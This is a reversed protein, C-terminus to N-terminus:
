YSSKVHSSNLRTSKRDSTNGRLNIKSSGGAGSSSRIVQLGAVKGTFANTINTERAEVLETGKLQQAAYGLSKAERKIGLATVVLEDLTEDGTTLTDNHVNGSVVIENELYGLMSFRLRDGRNATISYRGNDDTQTSTSKDVVSVTVGALAGNVDTVTGTVTQQAFL